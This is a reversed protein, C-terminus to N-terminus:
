LTDALNLKYTLTVCTGHSFKALNVQVRAKIVKGVFTL